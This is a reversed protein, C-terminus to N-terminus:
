RFLAGGLQSTEDDCSHRVLCIYHCQYEIEAEAVIVEAIKEKSVADLYKYRHTIPANLFQRNVVVFFVIGGIPFINGRDGAVVSPVGEVRLYLRPQEYQYPVTAKHFVGDQPVEALFGERHKQNQMVDVDFVRSLSIVKYKHPEAAPVLINNELTKVRDAKFEEIRDGIRALVSCTVIEVLPSEVGISDPKYWKKINEDTEPHLLRLRINERSALRIAYRSFQETSAVTVADIGLSRRQGMVQEIWPRGETDARDRVQVFRFSETPDPINSFAGDVETPDGVVNPLKISSFVYLDDLGQLYSEVVAIVKEKLRWSKDVDNTSFFLTPKGEVTIKPM